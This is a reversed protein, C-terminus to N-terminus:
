LLRGDELHGEVPNQPPLGHVLLHGRVHGEHNHELQDRALVPDAVIHVLDHAREHHRVVGRTLRIASSMGPYLPLRGQGVLVASM